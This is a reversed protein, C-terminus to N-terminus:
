RRTTNARWEGDEVVPQSNYSRFGALREDTRLLAEFVELCSKRLGEGAATLHLCRGRQEFLAVELTAALKKLQMSVTPQALCLEEAARTVSGLRAVAEFVILQPLLGHRFYRRLKTRPM